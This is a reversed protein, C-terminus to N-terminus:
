KTFGELPLGVAQIAEVAPAIHDDEEVEVLKATGYVDTLLDPYESAVALLAERIDTKISEPLGGRICVIHTPVGPTRTLIRLKSREEASLYIDAKPGEMTYYSVATADARGDLVERLAQAYGGGFSVEDFVEAPDQGQELIGERVMRLRAFVYGSTSTPSTFCFRMQGANAKLDEITQLPSDVPVVMISDYETREEGAPDARQEALLLEVDGDRRALLFPLSSVYAVDATESVLAQVSASYAAPVVVEVPIGLKQTLADGVKEAAARLAAPEKQKQFVFVIKEVSEADAESHSGSSTDSCGILSFGSLVFLFTLSYFLIRM